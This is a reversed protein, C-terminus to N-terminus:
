RTSIARTVDLRRAGRRTWRYYKERGDIKKEMVAVILLSRVAHASLRSIPFSWLDKILNVNDLKGYTGIYIVLRKYILRVCREKVSISRYTHITNSKILSKQWTSIFYLHHCMVVDHTYRLSERLSAFM